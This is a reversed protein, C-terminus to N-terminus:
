VAYKPALQSKGVGCFGQLVVKLSYEASVPLLYEEMKRVKSPRDVFCSPIPAGTFQFPRVKYRDASAQPQLNLDGVQAEICALGATQYDLLSNKEQINSKTEGM